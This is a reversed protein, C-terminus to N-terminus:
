QFGRKKKRYGKRLDGCRGGEVHGHWCNWCILTMVDGM